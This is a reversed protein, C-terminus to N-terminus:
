KMAKLAAVPSLIQRKAAEAAMWPAGVTM